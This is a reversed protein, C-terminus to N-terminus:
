RISAQVRRALLVLWAGAGAAAGVSDALWDQSDAARNPVLSQHWEDSAGYLSATLLALAFAAGGPIGSGRYARCLLLGLIAYAVAHAVKDAGSFGPTQLFPHPQSSIWFIAALYLVPPLWLALWHSQPAVVRPRARAENAGPDPPAPVGSV